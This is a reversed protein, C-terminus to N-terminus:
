KVLDLVSKTKITIYNDLNRDYGDYVVIKIDFEDFSVIEYSTGHGVMLGFAERNELIISDLMEITKENLESLIEIGKKLNKFSM